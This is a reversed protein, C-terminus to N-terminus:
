DEREDLTKNLDKYYGNDEGILEKIFYLCCYGLGPDYDYYSDDGSSNNLVDIAINYLISAIKFKDSGNRFQIGVIDAPYEDYYQANIDPYKQKVYDWYEKNVAEDNDDGLKFRLYEELTNADTADFGWFLALGNDIPTSKAILQRLPHEGNFYFPMHITIYLPEEAM